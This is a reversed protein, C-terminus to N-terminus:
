GDVLMYLFLTIIHILSLTTVKLKHKVLCKGLLEV